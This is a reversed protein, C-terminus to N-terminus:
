GSSVPNLICFNDNLRSMLAQAMKPLHERFFGRTAERFERASSFHRNNRVTENMVKWLREIPNLNPSYAPLFHLEIRTGKIYESLAESTHYGAQDLILHIRPVAAYEIELQKFFSIVSASNITEHESYSVHIGNLNLAGLINLRTRSATTSVLKDEGRKIWGYSIKTAQTPHVGDAFLIVEDSSISSKLEEYM